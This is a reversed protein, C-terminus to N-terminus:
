EKGTASSTTTPGTGAKAAAQLARGLAHHHRPADRAQLMAVPCRCARAAHDLLALDQRYRALGAGRTDLGAHAGGGCRRQSGLHPLQHALRLALSSEHAQQRQGQGSCASAPAAPRRHMARPTTRTATTRRAAATAADPAISPSRIRHGHACRRRAWQPHPMAAPAHRGARGRVACAACAAAARGM